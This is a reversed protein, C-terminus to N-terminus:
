KCWRTNRKNHPFISPNPYHWKRTQKTLTSPQTSIKPFNHYLAMLSCYSFLQAWLMPRFNTHCESFHLYNKNYMRIQKCSLPSGCTDPLIQWLFHCFLLQQSYNLRRCLRWHYRWSLIAEWVDWGGRSPVWSRLIRSRSKLNGRGPMGSPWPLMRHHLQQAPYMSHLSSYPNLMSLATAAPYSSARSMLCAPLPHTTMHALAMVDQEWCFCNWTLTIPLPTHNALLKIPRRPKFRHM